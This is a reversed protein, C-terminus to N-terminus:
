HFLGLQQFDSSRCCPTGGHDRDERGDGTPCEDTTQPEGENRRREADDVVKRIMEGFHEASSGFQRAVYDQDSSEAMLDLMARQRPFLWQKVSELRDSIHQAESGVVNQAVGDKGDVYQDGDGLPMFDPGADEGSALARRVHSPVHDNQRMEDTVAFRMKQGAYTSFALGISPDFDKVCEWLRVFCASFCDDFPMFPTQCQSAVQKAFPEYLSVIDDVSDPRNAWMSEAEMDFRQHLKM